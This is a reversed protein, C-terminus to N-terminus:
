AAILAPFLGWNEKRLGLWKVRYSATTRKQGDPLDTCGLYVPQPKLRDGQPTLGSSVSELYHPLRHSVFTTSVSSMIFDSLHHDWHSLLHDQCWWWNWWVSTSTVFIIRYPFYGGSPEQVGIQSYDLSSMFDWAISSNWSTALRTCCQLRAEHQLMRTILNWTYIYMFVSGPEMGTSVGKHVHLHTYIHCEWSHAVHMYFVEKCRCVTYM